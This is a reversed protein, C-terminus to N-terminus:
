NRANLWDAADTLIHASLLDPKGLNVQCNHLLTEAYLKASSRLELSPENISLEIFLQIAWPHNTANDPQLTKMYWAAARDLSSKIVPTSRTDSLWCLAHASSLEQETWVEIPVKGNQQGFLAHEDFKQRTEPTTLPGTLIRDPEIARETLSAWLQVDPSTYTHLRQTEPTLQYSDQNGPHQTLSRSRRWAFFPEDVPRTHGFDDRFVEAASPM